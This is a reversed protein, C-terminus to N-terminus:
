TTLTVGVSKNTCITLLQWVIYTHDPCEYDDMSKSCNEESESCNEECFEMILTDRVSDIDAVGM